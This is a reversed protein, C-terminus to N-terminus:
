CSSFGMLCASCVAVDEPPLAGKAMNHKGLKLKRELPKVSKSETQQDLLRLCEEDTAVYGELLSFFKHRLVAKIRELTQTTYWGDREKYDVDSRHRNFTVLARVNCTDRLESDDEIMEKLMPDIIDCLQFAATGSALTKGDFM